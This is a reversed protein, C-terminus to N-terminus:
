YKYCYSMLEKEIQEVEHHYDDFKDWLRTNKISIDPNFFSKPKIHNTSDLGLFIEITKITEEYRYISDEFKVYLVNDSSSVDKEIQNRLLKYWSIFTNVDDAPIWGERWFLKNLLYLDRPDRDVVIVKLNSFYNTYRSFNYAPVLQDFCLFLYKNDSDVSNLLRDFLLKTERIFVSQDCSLEIPVRRKFKSTHEYGDKAPFLKRLRRQIGLPIKYYVLRELKGYRLPHLYNSGNFKVKVLQHLYDEVVSCFDIQLKNSYEKSILNTLRRFRYIGEATKNREFDDVIYHQLDSIGDTAFALSMEFDAGCSKVDKYEQMLDSIVSSGTGGFGTCTIFKHNM